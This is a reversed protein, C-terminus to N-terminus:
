VEPLLAPALAGEVPVPAIAPVSRGNGLRIAASGWRTALTALAQDLAPSQVNM